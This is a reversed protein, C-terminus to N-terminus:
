FKDRFFAKIEAENDKILYYLAKNDKKTIWFHEILLRICHQVEEKIQKKSTEVANIM